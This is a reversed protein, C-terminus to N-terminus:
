RKETKKVHEYLHRADDLHEKVADRKKDLYERLDSNSADKAGKTFQDLMEEHQHITFSLYRHDFDEGKSNEMERKDKVDAKTPDSDFSFNAKEAIDRLEKIMKDSGGTVQSALKQIQDNDTHDRALRSTQATAELNRVLGKLLDKDDKNLRDDAAASARAGGPVALLTLVATLM